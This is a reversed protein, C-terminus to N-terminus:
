TSLYFIYILRDILARYLIWGENYAKSEYQLNISKLLTISKALSNRLFIDKGHVKDSLKLLLWIYITETKEIIERYKPLEKM